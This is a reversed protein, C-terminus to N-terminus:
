SKPKGTGKQREKNLSKHTLILKGFTYYKQILPESKQKRLAVWRATCARAPGNVVVLEDGEKKWVGCYDKILIAGILAGFMRCFAAEDIGQIEIYDLHADLRMISGSSYDLLIGTRQKFFEMADGILNTVTEATVQPPEPVTQKHIIGTETLKSAQRMRFVRECLNCKYRSDGISEVPSECNPCKMAQM